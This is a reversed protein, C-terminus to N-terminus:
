EMIADLMEALFSDVVSNGTPRLQKEILNSISTDFYAIATAQVLSTKGIKKADGLHIETISDFKENVRQSISLPVYGICHGDWYVRIAFPDFKNDEEKVLQFKIEKAKQGGVIKSYLYRHYTQVCIGDIEKTFASIPFCLVGGHSDESISIDPSTTIGTLFGDKHLM